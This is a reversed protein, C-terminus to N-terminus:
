NLISVNWSCQSSIPGTRGGTNLPFPYLYLLFFTRSWTRRRIFFFLFVFINGKTTYNTFAHWVVDWCRWVHHCCLRENQVERWWVCLCVCVFVLSSENDLLATLSPWLHNIGTMRLEIQRYKRRRRVRFSHFTIFESFKSWLKEMQFIKTLKSKARARAVDAGLVLSSHHLTSCSNATAISMCVCVCVNPAKWGSSSSSPTYLDNRISDAWFNALNGRYSGLKFSLWSTFLESEREREIEVVSHAWRSFVILNCRPSGSLNISFCATQHPQEVIRVQMRRFPDRRLHICPRFVCFTSISVNNNHHSAINWLLMSVAIIGNM